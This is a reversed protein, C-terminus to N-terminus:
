VAERDAPPAHGGARQLCGFKCQGKAVHSLVMGLVIIGRPLDVAIRRTRNADARRGDACATRNGDLAHGGRARLVHLGGRLLGVFEVLGPGVDDANGDVAALIGVGKDFNGAAGFGVQRDVQLFVVPHRFHDSRVDRLQPVVRPVQIVM